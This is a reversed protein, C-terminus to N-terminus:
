FLGTPDIGQKELDRDLADWANKTDRELDDIEKGVDDTLEPDVQVRRLLDINSLTLILARRIIRVVEFRLKAM